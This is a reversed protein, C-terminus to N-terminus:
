KKKLSSLYTVLADVDDKPLTAYKAPMAPKRTAKAKTTMAAPDVIWEHIEASTLKSGVDDLPGKANGKGAISHCVSCKQDAYVKAGKDQASAPRAVIGLVLACTSIILLRKM